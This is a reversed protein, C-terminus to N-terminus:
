RWAIPLDIPYGNLGYTYKFGLSLLGLRDNLLASRTLYFSGTREDMSVGFGTFHIVAAMYSAIGYGLCSAQLIYPILGHKVEHLGIGLSNRSKLYLRKGVDQMYLMELDHQKGQKYFMIDDDERRERFFDSKLQGYVDSRVIDQIFNHKQLMKPKVRCVNRSVHTVRKWPSFGCQRAKSLEEVEYKYYTMLEWVREVFKSCQSDFHSIEVEMVPSSESSRTIAKVAKNLIIEVGAIYGSPSSFILSGGVVFSNAYPSFQMISDFHYVCTFCENPHVGNETVNCVSLSGVRESDIMLNLYYWKKLVLYSHCLFSQVQQKYPIEVLLHGQLLDVNLSRM